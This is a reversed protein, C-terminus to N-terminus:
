NLPPFMKLLRISFTAEVTSLFPTFEIKGLEATAEDLVSEIAGGHASLYFGVGIAAGDGFRVAGVVNGATQPDNSERYFLRLDIGRHFAAADGTVWGGDPLLEYPSSAGPLHKEFPWQQKDDTLRQLVPDNPSFLGHKRGIVLPHARPLSPQCEQFLM